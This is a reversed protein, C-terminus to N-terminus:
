ASFSVIFPYARHPLRPLPFEANHTGPFHEFLIRVYYLFTCSPLSPLSNVYETSSDIYLFEANTTGRFLEFLVVRVISFTCSLLSLFLSRAYETPSVFYM